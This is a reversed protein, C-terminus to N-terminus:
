ALNVGSKLQRPRFIAIRRVDNIDLRDHRRCATAGVQPHISTNRNIRPINAFNINLEVLEHVVNDAMYSMM